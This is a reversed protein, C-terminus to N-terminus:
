GSETKRRPKKAVRREQKLKRKSEASPTDVAGLASRRLAQKIEAQLENGARLHRELEERLARMRRDPM